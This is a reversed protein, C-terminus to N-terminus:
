SYNEKKPNVGSRRSVEHTYDIIQLVKQSRSFFIWWKEFEKTVFKKVDNKSVNKSWGLHFTQRTKIKVKEEREEKKKKSKLLFERLHMKLVDDDFADGRPRFSEQFCFLFYLIIIEHYNLADTPNQPPAFEVWSRFAHTQIKDWKFYFLDFGHWTSNQM